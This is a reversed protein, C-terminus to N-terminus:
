MEIFDGNVDIMRKNVSPTSTMIKSKLGNVNLGVKALEEFLTELMFVLHELSTAYLILDDAYRINTLNEDANIDIGSGQIRLKWRKMVLELAANFLMPSIIDGQKVGREIDFFCDSGRICGTQNSYMVALFKIYNDGVNQDRLSEFVVLYEIRDFAKRLNLSVM